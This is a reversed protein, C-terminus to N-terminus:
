KKVKLQNDVDTVGATQRAWSEILSRDQESKATGKLTVKTAVTTVKVNKASAAVSPDTTIRNEIAATM